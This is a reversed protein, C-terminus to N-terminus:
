ADRKELLILGIVWFVAAFASFIGFSTWIGWDTSPLDMVFQRLNNFPAYKYIDRGVKPILNFMGELILWWVLVLSVAGATQRIIWAIGQCFVVVMAVALPLVWLSRQATEKSTWEVSHEAIADGATYSIVLTIFTLAMAIIVYLLLKAVAVEWRRPTVQYNTGSVKFRYETTVIMIAQIMIVALSFTYFGSSVLLIEYVPMEASDLAAFLITWGITFALILATTWWFSATTRLKTWEALMNRVIM